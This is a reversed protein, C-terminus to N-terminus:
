PIFVKRGEISYGDRALRGVVEVLLGREVDKIREHLAAEDDTDRIEVARQAIIPGSDVGADVFHVTCGTVRAGHALADRVAHAGPFSPLLAPHTNVFRGGFRALFAAGVIKMFGASVVLDPRHEAVAEALAADWAERTPYDRVRCVFTPLGAREARALGEIGSRDAGVAVVEAGYAPGREAVADLLAQLNTGSGSVLVVVRAPAAPEAPLPM